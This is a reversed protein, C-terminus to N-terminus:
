IASRDGARQPALLGKLFYIGYTLHTAVTGLVILMSLRLNGARLGYTLAIAGYVSLATVYAPRLWPWWRLVLPASVLMLLFLTPIAYSPQFGLTRFKRVFYGRHEAYRLVQRLHAAFLPRRHHFVLVDPDCVIRKGLQRTLKMCVITDEGPWFKTDFGGVELLDSKRIILNCTPLEEVDQVPAPIYRYQKAGTVLISSYVAGSGIQRLGDNAPTIAPGGVGAVRADAFYPVARALWGRAPAADDDLFAILAGNARRAGLDRKVGPPVKGTPIVTVGAVECPADPLVVIEYAPYDLRRCAALCEALQPSPAVCAIVISVLPTDTVPPQPRDYYRQIVARYWVSLTDLAVRIMTLPHWPLYLPAERLRLPATVRRAGLRQAIVLLELDFVYPKFLARRLLTKLWATRYLKMAPQPDDVPAGFAAAIARQYFALLARRIWPYAHASEPHHKSAIVVDGQSRREWLAQVQGPQYALNPDIVLAWDARCTDAAEELYFPAGRLPNHPVVTMSAAGAQRLIAPLPEAGVVVLEYRVGLQKLEDLVVEAGPAANTARLCWPVVLSLEPHGAASVM